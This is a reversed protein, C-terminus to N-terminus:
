TCRYATEVEEQSFQVVPAQPLLFVEDSSFVKAFHQYIESFEEHPALLEGQRGRIRVPEYRRKPALLHITRYVAGLDHRQAAQEAEAIRAEYWEKRTARSFRGCPGVQKNSHLQANGPKCPLACDWPQRVRACAGILMGSRKRQRNYLPTVVRGLVLILKGGLPTCGVVFLLYLM